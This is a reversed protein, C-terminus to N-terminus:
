NLRSDLHFEPVSFEFVSGFDSFYSVYDPCLPTLRVFWYIRKVEWLVSERSNPIIVWQEHNWGVALAFTNCSNEKEGFLAMIIKTLKVSETSFIVASCFPGNLVTPVCHLTAMVIVTVAKVRLLYLLQRFQGLWVWNWCGPLSPPRLYMLSSFHNIHARLEQSSLTPLQLIGTLDDCKKDM